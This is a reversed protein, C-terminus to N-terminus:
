ETLLKIIYKLENRNELFDNSTFVAVLFEKQKFYTIIDLFRKSNKESMLNNVLVKNVDYFKNIQEILKNIGGLQSVTTCNLCIYISTFIPMLSSKFQSIETETIQQDNYFIAIKSLLKLFHEM